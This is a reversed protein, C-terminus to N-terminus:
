RNEGRYKALVQQAIRGSDSDGGNSIFKACSKEDCDKFEKPNLECFMSPKEYDDGARATHTQCNGCIYDGCIHELAEVLGNVREAAEAPTSLSQSIKDIVDFMEQLGKTVVPVLSYKRADILEELAGRLIGVQAQLENLQKTAMQTTKLAQRQAEDREDILEQKACDECQYSRKDGTYTKGCYNCNCKYNGPAYGGIQETM